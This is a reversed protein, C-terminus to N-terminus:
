PNSATVTVIEYIEVRKMERREEASVWKLSSSWTTLPARKKVTPTNSHSMACRRDTATSCQFFNKPRISEIITNKPQRWFTDNANTM